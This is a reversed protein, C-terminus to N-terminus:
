LDNVEIWVGHETLARVREDDVWCM